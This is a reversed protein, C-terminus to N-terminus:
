SGAVSLFTQVTAKAPDQAEAGYLDFDAIYSRDTTTQWIHQWTAVVCDPLKGSSVYLRYTGAPITISMINEPIYNLSEVKFGLLTTYAGQDDSEYDTYVCYLDDSVRNAIKSKIDEAFFRQWLAAIDTQSKGNANTTRVSIGAVIFSDLHTSQPTMAITKTQWIECLCYFGGVVLGRRVEEWVVVGM